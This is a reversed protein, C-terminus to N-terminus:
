LCLVPLLMAVSSSRSCEGRTPPSFIGWAGSASKGKHDFGSGARTALLCSILSGHESLGPVSRRGQSSSIKMCLKFVDSFSSYPFPKSTPLSYHWGWPESMALSSNSGPFAVWFDPHDKSAKMEASPDSCLLQFSFLMQGVVGSGWPLKRDQPRTGVVEKPFELNIWIHPAKQACVSRM